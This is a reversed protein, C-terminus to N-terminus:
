EVRLPREILGTSSEGNWYRLRYDGPQEPAVLSVENSAFGRDQNLRQRRVVTDGGAEVIQVDDRVAGPGQWRLTFRQGAPVSDPAHLDVPVARVSFAREVLVRDDTGSYYRLTYNGPAIPATISAERDDYGRDQNLRQRRIVRSDGAATIQLDDRGAGPGQWRVAFPLGM